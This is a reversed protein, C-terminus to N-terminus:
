GQRRNTNNYFLKTREKTLLGKDALKNVFNEEYRAFDEACGINEATEYHEKDAREFNGSWDISDLRQKLQLLNINDM